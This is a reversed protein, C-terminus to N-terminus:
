CLGYYARFHELASNSSTLLSHLSQLSPSLLQLLRLTGLLDGRVPVSPIRGRFLTALYTPILAM